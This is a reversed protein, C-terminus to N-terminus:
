FRKEFIKFFNFIESFSRIKRKKFFFIEDSFFKHKNKSSVPRFYKFFQFIPIRDFDTKKPRIERFDDSRFVVTDAPFAKFM